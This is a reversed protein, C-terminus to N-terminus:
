STPNGELKAEVRQIESELRGEVRRSGGRVEVSGVEIKKDLGLVVKELSLLLEKL